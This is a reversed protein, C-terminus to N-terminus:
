YDDDWTEGAITPDFWSPAVHPLDPRIDFGPFDLVEAQPYDRQADELTEYFRLRTRRYEGELVSGQPYEGHEIVWFGPPVGTAAAAAQNQPEITYRNDTM